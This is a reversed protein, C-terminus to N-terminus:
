YDKNRCVTNYYSALMVHFLFFKYYSMKKFSLLLVCNLVSSSLCCIIKIFSNMSHSVSDNAHCLLKILSKFILIYEIYIKTFCLNLKHFFFYTIAWGYIIGKINRLTRTLFINLNM